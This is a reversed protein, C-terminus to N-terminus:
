RQSPNYHHVSIQLNEGYCVIFSQPDNGFPIKEILSNSISRERHVSKEKNPSHFKVDVM